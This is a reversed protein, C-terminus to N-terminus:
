GVLSQNTEGDILARDQNREILKEVLEVEMQARAEWTPMHEDAFRMASIGLRTRLEADLLLERMILPLRPIDNPGVLIGTENHKVLKSTDSTDLVLVCKGCAMAEMIGNSANGHHSLSVVLDAGNIYKAVEEQPVGGIFRVYQTVGLNEALGELRVKEDGEGLIVFVIGDLQSAVQPIATILNDVGKNSVLRSVTLVFKQCSLGVSKKFREVDFTPDYYRNVGNRWCKVKEAPVNFRKAVQKGRTGDDTIILFSSPVKFALVEEFRGILQLTNSLFPFLFNGYLRTINHVGCRKAVFWAVPAGYSTHGYVVNPRVKRAIKMAARAAVFLFLSWYIKISIRHLWIHTSPLPKFPMRFHHLHIGEATIEERVNEGPVLLHVEHGAVLFGKQGWYVSPM